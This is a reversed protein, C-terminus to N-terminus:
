DYDDADGNTPLLFEKIDLQDVVYQHLEYSGMKWVKEYDEQDLLYRFNIVRNRRSTANYYPINTITLNERDCVHRDNKMKLLLKELDYKANTLAYGDVDSIYIPLSIPKYNLTMAKYSGANWLIPTYGELTFGDKEIYEVVDTIHMQGLQVKKLNEDKVLAIHAYHNYMEDVRIRESFSIFGNIADYKNGNEKVDSKLAIGKCVTRTPKGGDVKIERIDEYVVFETGEIESTNVKRTIKVDVEKECVLNM